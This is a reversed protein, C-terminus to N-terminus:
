KEGKIYNIYNTKSNTLTLCDYVDKWTTKKIDEITSSLCNSIEVLEKKSSGKKILPLIEKSYGILGSIRLKSFMWDYENEDIETNYEGLNEEIVSCLHDCLQPTYGYEDEFYSFMDKVKKITKKTEEKEEPKKLEEKENVNM